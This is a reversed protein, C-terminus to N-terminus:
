LSPARGRAGRLSEFGVTYKQDKILTSQPSRSRRIALVRDRGASSGAAAPGSGPLRPCGPPERSDVFPVNEKSPVM